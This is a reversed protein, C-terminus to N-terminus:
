SRRKPAARIPRVDGPTANAPQSVGIHAPLLAPVIGSTIMATGAGAPDSGLPWARQAMMGSQSQSEGTASQRATRPGPAQVGEGVEEPRLLGGQFGVVGPVLVPGGLRGLAAFVPRFGAGLEGAAALGGFGAGLLDGKFPPLAEFVVALGEVLVWGVELRL